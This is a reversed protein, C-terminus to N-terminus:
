PLAVEGVDPLSVVGEPLVEVSVPLASVGYISIFFVDGPGVIYNKPDVARDLLNGTPIEKREPEKKETPQTQPELKPRLQPYDLGKAAGQGMLILAVIMM